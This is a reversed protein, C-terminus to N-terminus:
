HPPMFFGLPNFFHAFALSLNGYEVIVDHIVKGDQLSKLFIKANKNISYVEGSKLSYIAGRVVGEVLQCPDNLMFYKRSNM